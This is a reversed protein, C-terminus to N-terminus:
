GGPRGPAASIRAPAHSEQGGDAQAMLHTGRDAAAAAYRARAQSASTVPPSITM